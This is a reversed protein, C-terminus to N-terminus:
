LADKGEALNSMRIVNSVDYIFVKGDGINGTHLVKEIAELATELPVSCIVIEIKVKPLLKVNVAEGRYYETHGKQNGCGQVAYVTMGTIGIKDLEEILEDLKTQPAVIDIRTIKENMLLDGEQKFRLANLIFQSYINIDYILFNILCKLYIM